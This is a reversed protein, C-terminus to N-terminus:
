DDLSGFYRPSWLCAEGFCATECHSCYRQGCIDYSIESDPCITCHTLENSDHYIHTDYDPSYFELSADSESMDKMKQLNTKDFECCTDQLVCECSPSSSLTQRSSYYHNQENCTSPHIVINM